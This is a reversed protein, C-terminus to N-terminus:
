RDAFYAREQQEWFARDDASLQRLVRCPTGVAVVRPPIDHTVVAGSGIVAGDGITVGPNLTVNAGLWVDAGIRIPKAYELGRGRVDPDLPHAATCICVRPGIATRSGIEVRAVDLIVCGCNIYVNDGLSINGGYDVYLGPEICCNQGMAGLLERLLPERRDPEAADLQRLLRKARARLATLEPDAASYLLGSLMRERETM